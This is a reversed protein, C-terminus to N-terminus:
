RNGRLSLRLDGLLEMAKDAADIDREDIFYARDAVDIIREVHKTLEAVLMQNQNM